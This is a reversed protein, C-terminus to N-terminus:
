ACTVPSTDKKFLTSRPHPQQQKEQQQLDSNGNRNKVAEGLVKSQQTFSNYIERSAYLARIVAEIAVRRELTFNSLSAISMVALKQFFSIHRFTVSLLLSHYLCILTAFSLVATPLEKQLIANSKHWM